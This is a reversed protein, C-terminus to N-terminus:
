EVRGWPAGLIIKRSLAAMASDPHLPDRPIARPRLLSNGLGRWSASDLRGMVDLVTPYLDIQGAAIDSKATIGSNLIILPVPLKEFKKGTIKHPTHDGTIVIVSNDYLGINKLWKIFSCLQADFIATHVHHLYEQEGMGAPIDGPFIRPTIRADFPAHMGVTTIRAYFPHPLTPLIKRTNALILSDVIYDPAIKGNIFMTHDILSDFGYARNTDKHKWIAGSEGIIEIAKKPKIERVLSPYNNSAAVSVFPIDYLPLIGANYIFQGDSSNGPGTQSYLSTFVVADPAAILSDLCPTIPRNGISRDLSSSSLSEVLIFILNKDRNKRLEEKIPTAITSLPRHGAQAITEIEKPSLKIEMSISRYTHSLYGCIYGHRILHSTIKTDITTYREWAASLTRETAPISIYVAAFCKLPGIIFLLALITSLTAKQRWRIPEKSIDRHYAIYVIISFIMPVIIFLNRLSIVALSCKILTHDIASAMLFNRPPMVDDFYPFYWSNIVLTCSVLFGPIIVVWRWRRPLFIYPLTLLAADSLAYLVSQVIAYLLGICPNAVVFMFVASLYYILGFFLPNSASKGGRKLSQLKDCISAM